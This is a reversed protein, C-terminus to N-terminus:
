IWGKQVYWQYTKNLAEYIEFDPQFHLLEKAKSNSIQWNSLKFEKLREKNFVTLEGTISSYLEFIDALIDLLIKPIVIHNSFTNMIQEIIQVIEVQTYSRDNAAFFIQGQSKPDELVSLIFGALDESYIMSFIKEKQVPFLMIHKKIIKYMQLFDRDGPGFVSAPRIITWSKKVKQRIIKEAELKSKGYLSVPNCASEEDLPKNGSSPGAAAQSSIFILHEMSSTRNFIDIIRDTLDVNVKKYTKWNNARTLGANHILIQQGSFLNNLENENWYDVYHIDTKESLLSIDSGNRVLPVIDYNNELSKATITSGLFGNAGTIVIKKM